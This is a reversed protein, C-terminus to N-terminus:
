RFLALAFAVMAILFTALYVTLVTDDPEDDRLFEPLEFDDKM